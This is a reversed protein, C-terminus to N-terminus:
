QGRRSATPSHLKMGEVVYTQALLMYHLRLDEAAADTVEVGLRRMIEAASVGSALGLRELTALGLLCIGITVPDLRPTALKAHLHLM